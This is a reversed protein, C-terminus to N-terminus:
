NGLFRYSIGMRFTIHDAGANIYPGAWLELRRWAVRGRIGFLPEWRQMPEFFEGVPMYLDAYLGWQLGKPQVKYENIHIRRDKPDYYRFQLLSGKQTIPQPQTLWYYAPYNKPVFVTDTRYVTDTSGVFVYRKIPEIPQWNFEPLNLDPLPVVEEMVRKKINPTGDYGWWYGVGTFAIAVFLWSAILYKLKM